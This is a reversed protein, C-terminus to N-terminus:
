NSNHSEQVADILGLLGLRYSNKQFGSVRGVVIDGILSTHRFAERAEPNSLHVEVVPLKAVLLADRIAVSTHTWAGPNIVIGDVPQDMLQHIRDIMEGEHNSQYFELSMGTPAGSTLRNELDQLTTAGYVEPERQGLLNLNPGNLVLVKSM